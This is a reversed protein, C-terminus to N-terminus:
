WVGGLSAIKDLATSMSSVTHALFYNFDPSLYVLGMVIILGFPELAVYPTRVGPPLLWAMVRSGDLPPIPVLNFVTLLLNFQVATYLVIPLVDDVRASVTSSANNYLGTSVFFKFAILFFLALLLNSTPGALAVLSMDRWPHRLRHFNVPVPKAGGFLIGANSLLLIGPLIISMFLDIHPIPNLTIRGLDKGTSDGCKWAVWAHAAEHIGLCIVLLVIVLISAVTDMEGFMGPMAAAAVFALAYASLRRRRIGDFRGPEHNRETGIM